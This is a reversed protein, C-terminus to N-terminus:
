LVLMKSCKRLNPCIGTSSTCDICDNIWHMHSAFLKNDILVINCILNQHTNCLIYHKTDLLLRIQMVIKWHIAIKKISAATIVFNITPLTLLIWFLFFKIHLYLITSIKLYLQTTHQMIHILFTLWSPIFKLHLSNNYWIM